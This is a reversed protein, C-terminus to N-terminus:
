SKQGKGIYNHDDSKLYSLVIIYQMLFMGNIYFNSAFFMTVIVVALYPNVTKETSKWLKILMWLYLIAGVAGTQILIRQITNLYFNDEYGVQWTFESANSYVFDSINYDTIGLLQCRTDLVAYVWYGRLMRVNMNGSDGSLEFTLKELSQSFFPLYFFSAVAIVALILMLIKAPRSIKYTFFSLGWLIILVMIGSTSGTLLIALSIIVAVLVDKKQQALFLVPSLFTIAMAPETFFAVPRDSPTTWNDNRILEAGSVPLLRVPLVSHHLVFIQFFQYVIVACVILGLVKWCKYLADKDLHKAVITVCYGSILIKILKMVFARSAPHGYLIVTSLLILVYWITYISLPKFVPFETYKIVCFMMFLICYTLMVSGLGYEYQALLFAFPMFLSWRTEAKSYKKINLSSVM